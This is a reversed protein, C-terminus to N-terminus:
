GEIEAITEEVAALASEASALARRVLERPTIVIARAANDHISPCADNWAKALQEARERDMHFAGVLGERVFTMHINKRDADVTLVMSGDDLGVVFPWATIAACSDMVRATRIMEDRQESLIRRITDLAARREAPTYTKTTM